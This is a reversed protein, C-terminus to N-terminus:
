SKTDSCLNPLNLISTILDSRDKSNSWDDQKKFFTVLLSNITQKVPNKLEDIKLSNIISKIKIPNWENKSNETLFKRSLCLFNLSKKILIM